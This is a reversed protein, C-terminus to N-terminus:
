PSPHTPWLELAVYAKGESPASGGPSYYINVPRATGNYGTLTGLTVSKVGTSSVDVSQVFADTDDSYGVTLTDSGDSNFAELVHCHARVFYRNAPMTGLDVTQQTHTVWGQLRASAPPAVTSPLLLTM